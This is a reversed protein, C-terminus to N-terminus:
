WSDGDVPALRGVIDIILGEEELQVLFRKAKDLDINAEDCEDLVRRRSVGKGHNLDSLDSVINLVRRKVGLGHRSESKSKTSKLVMKQIATRAEEETAVYKMESSPTITRSCLNCTSNEDESRVAMFGTYGCHPCRFVRITQERSTV